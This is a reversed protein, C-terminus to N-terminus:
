IGYIGEKNGKNDITQYSDPQQIESRIVEIELADLDNKVKSLLERVDEM